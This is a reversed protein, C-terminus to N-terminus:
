EGQEEELERILVIDGLNRTTSQRSYESGHFTMLASAGGDLNYAARCGLDSMLQALQQIDLGESWDYQRGDVTIFCYHGPEYYGIASRPNSISIAYGANLTELPQGDGDLLMPGFCWVQYPEKELIEEVTYEDPGYTEMTGDWYLVCIDYATKIDNYLVGNRVFFGGNVQANSYDGNITILGQSLEALREARSVLYRSYSDNEAYSQLNEIQAVYIDAVYWVQPSGDIEEQCTTITISVNPSSYSNETWVIEDTFHESFKARWDNPDIEEEPEEPEASEIPAATSLAVPEMTKQQLYGMRPLVHHFLAFVCLFLGTLLVEQLIISWVPEKKM